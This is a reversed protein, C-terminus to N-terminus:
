CRLGMIKLDVFLRGNPKGKTKMVKESFGQDAFTWNNELRKLYKL